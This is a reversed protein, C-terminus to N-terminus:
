FEERKTKSLDSLWKMRKTDTKLDHGQEDDYVCFDLVFARKDPNPKEVRLARGIRQITELKGVSSAFLIVNNLSKIDIGQSVKHCTILCDISGNALNQLNTDLTEDEYFTSYNHFGKESIIQAIKDGYAKSHVFIITRHLSKLGSKDLYESFALLMNEAQKKINSILIKVDFESRTKGDSGAKGLSGIIKSIKLNEEETLEFILAKYDLEVLIGRKIADQIEFTFIIPGIEDFLFQTGDEDFEGRDPTASLGLRYTFKKHLGKTKSQKVPAAMDHVEDYIILTKSAQDDEILRICEALETSTVVLINKKPANLYAQINKEKSFHKYIIKQSLLPDSNIEKVWQKLLPNGKMTIILSDILENNFLHNAIKIATATKGTGTAMALIGAKKEIFVDLAEDQHRWKHLEREDQKVPITESPQDVSPETNIKIQPRKTSASAKIQDILTQSLPRIYLNDNKEEWDRDVKNIINNAFLRNQELWDKYVTATETNYQHGSDSENFSGDFAIKKGDEFEFYGRKVHYLNAYRDVEEETPWPDPWGKGKRIAIKIVLLNNAILYALLASRERNKHDPDKQYIIAKRLIDEQYTQITQIKDEESINEKLTDLLKDDSIVPSCLIEISVKDKIIHSLADAYTKLSSSSFYAAGRRYKTCEKLCPRIFDRGINDDGNEYYFKLRNIGESPM